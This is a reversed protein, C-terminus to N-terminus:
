PLLLQADGPQSRPLPSRGADPSQSGGPSTPSGQAEAEPTFIQALADVLATRQTRTLRKIAAKDGEMPNDRLVDASPYISEQIIENADLYDAMTLKWDLRFNPPRNKVYLHYRILRGVLTNTEDIEGSQRNVYQNELPLDPLQQYIEQWFDRLRPPRIQAVAPSSGSPLFRVPPTLTSLFVVGIAISTAIALLRFLRRKQNM